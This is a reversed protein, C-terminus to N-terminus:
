ESDAQRAVQENLHEVNPAAPRTWIESRSPSLRHTDARSHWSCHLSGVMHSTMNPDPCASSGLFVYTVSSFRALPAFVALLFLFYLRSRRRHIFAAGGRVGVVVVCGVGNGITKCGREGGGVGGDADSEHAHAEMTEKATRPTSEGNAEPPLFITAGEGM